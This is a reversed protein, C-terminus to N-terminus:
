AIVKNDVLNVFGAKQSRNTAPPGYWGGPTKYCLSGEGNHDLSVLLGMLSDQTFFGAVVLPQSFADIEDITAQTYPSSCGMQAKGDALAPPTSLSAAAALLLGAVAFSSVRKM